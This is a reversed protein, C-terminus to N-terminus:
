QKGISSGLGFRLFIRLRRLIEADAADPLLTIARVLRRGPCAIRLVIMLPTVTWGPRLAGDFVGQGRTHLQCSGDSMLRLRVISGPSCLLAHRPILVVGSALLLGCVAVRLWWPLPMALVAVLAAAHVGAVLWTLLPSARMPIDIYDM